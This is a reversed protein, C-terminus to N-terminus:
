SFCAELEDEYLVVEKFDEGVRVRYIFFIDSTRPSIWYYSSVEGVQGAYSEVDSERQSLPEGAVPRIIVRQGVDYKPGM